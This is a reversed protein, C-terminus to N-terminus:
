FNEVTIKLVKHAITYSFGARALSALEKQKDKDPNDSPPKIRYKGLKKRKTYYIAAELEANENNNDVEIIAKEIDERALGKAYLKSIIAQKGLGKRRMSTVKAKAFVSDDILGVKIYREILEDVLPIFENIDVKHYDCSRKVKRMIIRRFNAVSSSYRELYYLGANELYTKSIKRPPRKERKAPKKYTKM